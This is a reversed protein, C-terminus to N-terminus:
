DCSLLDNAYVMLKAKKIISMRRFMLLLEDEQDSLGEAGNVINVPAHASGIVCQNDHINGYVQGEHNEVSPKEKQESEELGDWLTGVSVDLYNAIAKVADPSPCYKGTKWASFSQPKIGCSEYFKMKPIQKEKLIREITCAIKYGYM